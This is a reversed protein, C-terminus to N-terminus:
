KWRNLIVKLQSCLMKTYATAGNKNFHTADQYYDPNNIFRKDCYFNLFPVNYKHCLQIIPDFANGYYTYKWRPSATFILHTKGKCEKILKELYYLKLSDVVYDNKIEVKIRDSVHGNVPLYGNKEYTTNKVDLLIPVFAAHYRYMQSYMKYHENQDIKGFISDVSSCLGYYSRLPNIFIMNDDRIMEDLVPLIDYIIVKPMYRRTILKFRGYHYIIGMGSVGCNYCSMGLSDSIIQPDYHLHARSSGFILIDEKSRECVYKDTYTSGGRVHNRLTVCVRGYSYDM